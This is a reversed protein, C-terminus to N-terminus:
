HDACRRGLSSVGFSRPGPYARVKARERSAFPGSRSVWPRTRPVLLPWAAIPQTAPAGELRHDPKVGSGGCAPCPTEDADPHRVWSGNWLRGHGHCRPCSAVPVAFGTDASAAQAARAGAHWGACFLGVAAEDLLAVAYSGGPMGLRGPDLDIVTDLAQKYEAWEAACLDELNLDGSELDVTAPYFRTM